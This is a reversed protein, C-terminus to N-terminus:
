SADGQRDKRNKEQDKVVGDRTDHCAWCPPHVNNYLHCRTCFQERAGHCGLCTTDLNMEFREGRSSTYIILDDRVVANRWANLLRMHNTRMYEKSEVCKRGDKPYEVGPTRHGTGLLNWDLPLTALVVFVTIGGWVWGRNYM